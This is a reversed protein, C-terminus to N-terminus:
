DQENCVGGAGQEIRVPSFCGRGPHQWAVASGGDGDAGCRGQETAGLLVKYLETKGWLSGQTCVWLGAPTDQLLCVTFGTSDM